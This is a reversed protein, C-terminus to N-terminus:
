AEENFLKKLAQEIEAQAKEAKKRQYYERQKQRRKEAFEPDNKYQAQKAERRKANFAEPDKEQKRRYSIRNWERCKDAYGPINLRYWEATAYKPKEPFADKPAITEM